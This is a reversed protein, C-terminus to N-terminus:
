NNQSENVLTNLARISSYDLGIFRIAFTNDKPYPSLCRLVKGTVNLPPCPYVVRHRFFSSKYKEWDPIELAINLITDEPFVTTAEILAGGASINLTHGVHDLTIPTYRSRKRKVPEQIVKISCSYNLPSREHLRREHGTESM